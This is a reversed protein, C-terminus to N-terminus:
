SLHGRYVAGFGGQGLKEEAAFSKTANVLEHYPFRRPWTGMEIEVIPDGYDDGDSSVNEAERRKKSRRRRVLVATIAFLLVVLLAAGATVGAVVGGSHQQKKSSKSRSSHRTSPGLVSSICSLPMARRHRSALTSDDVEEPLEGTVNVNNSLNYPTTSGNIWLQASLISSDADFRVDATMNGVLSFPLPETKVSAVNSVDIGIHDNTANPDINNKYTDFEVAVFRDDSGTFDLGGDTSNPKARAFGLTGGPAKESMRSSHSVLFFAMGDGRTDTNNPIIIFSFRTTFSAVEKTDVDRLQVPLPYSVRGSTNAINRTIDICGADGIVASGQRTVNSADSFSSYSFSVAAATALGPLCGLLFLLWAVAAAAAMFSSKTVVVAAPAM